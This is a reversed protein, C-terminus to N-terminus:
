QISEIRNDPALTVVAKKWDSRKGMVKGVRKLKGHVNIVRVALVNVKFIKEVAKKVEIKNAKSNVEFNYQNSQERLITGKETLLMKKIVRYLEM